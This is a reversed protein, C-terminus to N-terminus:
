LYKCLQHKIEKARKLDRWSVHETDIATEICKLFLAIELKSLEIEVRDM